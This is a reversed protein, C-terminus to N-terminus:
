RSLPARRVRQFGGSGSPCMTGDSKLVCGLVADCRCEEPCCLSVNCVFEDKCVCVGNDCRRTVPDCCFDGCM